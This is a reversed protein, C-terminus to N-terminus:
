EVVFKMTKNRGENELKLLYIGKEVVGIQQLNVQFSNGTFSTSFVKCGDIKLITIKYQQSNTQEDCNVVLKEQTPNPQILIKIQKNDVSAVGTFDKFYFIKRYFNNSYNNDTFTKSPWIIVENDKNRMAYSLGSSITLTRYVTFSDNPLLLNSQMVFSDSIVPILNYSFPTNIATDIYINYYLTHNFFTDVGILSKNKVVFSLSDTQNAILTDALTVKSIILDGSTQAQLANSTILLFTLFPFAIILIKKM